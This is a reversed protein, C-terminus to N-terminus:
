DPREGRGWAEWDFPSYAGSKGGVMFIVTPSALARADRVVEPAVYLLEGEGLRVDQGDCTFHAAGRVILYLEEQGGYSVEEHPVVLEEGENAEYANVGFGSIGFHERIQRWKQGYGKDRAWPEWWSPPRDTGIEDLHAKQWRGALELPSYLFPTLRMRLGDPGSAAQRSAAAM